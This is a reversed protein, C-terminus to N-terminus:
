PRWFTLILSTNNCVTLKFQQVNADTEESKSEKVRLVASAKTYTSRKSFDVGISVTSFRILELALWDLWLNSHNYVM